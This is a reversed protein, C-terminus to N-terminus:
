IRAGGRVVLVVVSSQWILLLAFYICVKQALLPDIIAAASKNAKALEEADMKRWSYDKCHRAVAEKNTIIVTCSKTDEPVFADRILDWHEKSQLGEIVCLWRKECLTMSLDAFFSQANKNWRKLDDPLCYQYFAELSDSSNVELSTCSVIEILVSDEFNLADFESQKFNLAKFERNKQIAQFVEQITDGGEDGLLSIVRRVELQRILETKDSGPLQV